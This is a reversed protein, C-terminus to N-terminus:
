KADKAHILGWGGTIGLGLTTWNCTGTKLFEVAAGSAAAIITLIGLVTTKM